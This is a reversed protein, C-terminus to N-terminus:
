DLDFEVGATISFAAHPELGLDRGYIGFGTKLSADAVIAMNDVVDARVGGGLWLPFSIGNLDDASFFSGRVALGARLFPAFKGREALHHRLAVGVEAGFGSFIGHDCIVDDARDRFCSAGQGGFTFGVVQELWDRETFRYLYSGQLLAGGPTVRGGAEMGLRAGLMQTTASQEEGSGAETAELEQAVAPGALLGLAVFVLARAHM